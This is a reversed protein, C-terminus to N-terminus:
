IGYLVVFETLTTWTMDNIIVMHANCATPWRGLKRRAGNNIGKVHILTSAALTTITIQEVICPADFAMAMTCENVIVLTAALFRM